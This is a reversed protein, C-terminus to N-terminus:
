VLRNSMWIQIDTALQRTKSLSVEKCIYAIQLFKDHGYSGLKDCQCLQM